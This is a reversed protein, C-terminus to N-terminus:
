AEKKKKNEESTEETEEKSKSIESKEEKEKGEVEVEEPTSVKELEEALEEETIPATVTAVPTDEKVLIKVGPPVKLDKVYITQEFEELPSLDVTLSHPLDKPLAEIEIEDMAKVLVGGKKVAPSEGTFVLAVKATVPKNMEVEYFDVHIPEGSIFHNDVDQILVKRIEEKKDEQIVLDILDSEGAEKYVKLFEKKDIVLPLSLAKSNYLVAPLLGKERLLKNKKGFINRKRATLTLPKM